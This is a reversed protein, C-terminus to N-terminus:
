MLKEGKEKKKKIETKQFFFFPLQQKCGIYVFVAIEFICGFTTHSHFASYVVLKTICRSHM